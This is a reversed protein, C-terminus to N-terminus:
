QKLFFDWILTLKKNFVYGKEVNFNLEKRSRMMAEGFKSYLNLDELIGIAKLVKEIGPKIIPEGEM